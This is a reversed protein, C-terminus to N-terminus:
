VNHDCHDLDDRDDDSSNDDEDHSSLYNDHFVFILTFFWPISMINTLVQQLAMDTM